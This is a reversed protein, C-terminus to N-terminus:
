KIIEKKLYFNSIVFTQLYEMNDKIENRKFTQKKINWNYYLIKRKNKM